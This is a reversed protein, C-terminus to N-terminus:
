SLIIQELPGLSVISHGDHPVRYELISEIPRSVVTASQRILPDNWTYTDRFNPTLLIRIQDSDENNSLVASSVSKQTGNPLFLLCEETDVSSSFSKLVVAGDSYTRITQLVPKNDRTGVTLMDSSPLTQYDALAAPDSHTTLRRSTHQTTTMSTQSTTTTPSEDESVSGLIKKKRQRKNKGSKKKWKEEPCEAITRSESDGGKAYESRGREAYMGRVLPIMPFADVMHQQINILRKEKYYFHDGSLFGGCPSFNLNQLGTAYVNKAAQREVCSGTPATRFNWLSTQSVSALRNPVNEMFAVVQYRPNLAFSGDILYDGYVDSLSAINQWAVVNTVYADIVQREWITLSWFGESSDNFDRQREFHALYQGCPSFLRRYKACLLNCSGLGLPILPLTIRQQRLNGPSDEWYLSRLVSIQSMDSTFSVPFRFEQGNAALEVELVDEPDLDITFYRISPFGSKLELVQYTAVIGELDVQTQPQSCECMVLSCACSQYEGSYGTFSLRTAIPRSVILVGLFQGCGSLKSVKFITEGLYESWKGDPVTIVKAKHNYAWSMPGLFASVSPGWIEYPRVALLHSWQEELKRLDKSLDHICDLPKRAHAQMPDQM